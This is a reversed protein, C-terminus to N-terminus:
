APLPLDERACHVKEDVIFARVDTVARVGGSELAAGWAAAGASGPQLGPNGWWFLTELLCEPAALAAALAAIGADGINNYRLDLM